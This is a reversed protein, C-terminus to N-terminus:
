RVTVKRLPSTGSANFADKAVTVFLQYTGPRLTARIKYTSDRRVTAASVNVRGHTTKRWLLVSAGRRTPTLAGTAVVATGRPVTSRALRLTLKQAVTVTTAVSTAPAYQGDSTFTWRYATTVSPHQVPSTAVGSSNTNVTAIASYATANAARGWLTVPANAVPHGSSALTATSTVPAGSITSTRSFHGTLTDSALPVEFDYVTTASNIGVRLDDINLSQQTTSCTDGTIAIGTLTVGPDSTVFDSYTGQGHPSWASASSTRFWWLMNPDSLVDTRSWGSGAPLASTLEWGGGNPEDALILAHAATPSGLSSVTFTTLDAEAASFAGTLEAGATFNLALSGRGLPPKAPGIVHAFSATGATDSCTDPASDVDALTFSNPLGKRSVVTTSSASGVGVSATAAAMSVTVTAVAVISVLPWRKNM